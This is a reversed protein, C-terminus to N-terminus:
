IIVTSKSIFANAYSLGQSTIVRRLTLLDGGPEDQEQQKWGGSNRRPLIVSGRLSLLLHSVHCLLALELGGNAQLLTGKALALIKCSSPYIQWLDINPTDYSHSQGCTSHTWHLWSWTLM